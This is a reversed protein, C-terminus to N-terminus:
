RYVWCYALWLFGFLTYIIGVAGYFPLNGFLNAPLYGYPDLSEIFGNVTIPYSKEECVAMFFAYEGTKLIDHHM